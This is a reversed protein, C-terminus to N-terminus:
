SVYILFEEATKAISAGASSYDADIFGSGDQGQEINGWYGRFFPKESDASLDVGNEQPQNKKSL